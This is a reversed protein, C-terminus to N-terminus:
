LTGGPYDPDAFMRYRRLMRCAEVYGRESALTEWRLALADTMSPDAFLMGRFSSALPDSTPLGLARLTRIANHDSRNM